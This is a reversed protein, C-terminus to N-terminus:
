RLVERDEANEDIGSAVLQITGLRVLEKQNERHKYALSAIAILANRLLHPAQLERSFSLVTLVTKARARAASGYSLRTHDRAESHDTDILHAAGHDQLANVIAKLGNNQKAHPKNSPDHLTLRHLVLCGKEQVVAIGHLSNMADCVEKIFYGTSSTAPLKGHGQKFTQPDKCLAALLALADQQIKTIRSFKVMADHLLKLGGAKLIKTRVHDQEAIQLLGEIGKQQVANSTKHGKMERLFAPVDTSKAAILDDLKKAVQRAGRAEAEGAPV